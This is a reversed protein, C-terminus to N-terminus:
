FINVQVELILMTSANMNYSCMFRVRLWIFETCLSLTITGYGVGVSGCMGCVKKGM